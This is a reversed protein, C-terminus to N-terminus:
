GGGSVGTRVAPAAGSEGTPCGSSRPLLLLLLLGLLLFFVFLFIFLFRGGLHRGGRRLLLLVLEVHDV